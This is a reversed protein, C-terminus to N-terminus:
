TKTVRSAALWLMAALLTEAVITAIAAGQWGQTPILLLNLVINVVVAAGYLSMRLSQRNIGTLVNAAFLQLSQLFPILSLARIMPVSDEFREPVWGDFLFSTVLIVISAFAGYAATPKSLRKALKYAGPADHGGIEFFDAATARVVAMTPLITLRVARDAIGYFGTDAVFGFSTLLPRDFAALMDQAGATGVFPLGSRIRELTPRAIRPRAGTVAATDLVAIAAGFLAFPFAVVAFVELRASGIAVFVLVAMTRSIAFILRARAGVRLVRTAQGCRVCGEVIWIFYLNTAMVLFATMAGVEPFFVLRALQGVAFGATAGILQTALTIGWEGALDGGRAVERVLIEQSGLNAITGIIMGSSTIAVWFGFDRTDMQWALGFFIILSLPVQVFEGGFAARINRALGPNQAATM